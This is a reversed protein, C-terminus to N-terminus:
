DLLNAKCAARIFISYRRFKGLNVCLGKLDGTQFTKKIAARDQEM